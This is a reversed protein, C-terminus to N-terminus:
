SVVDIKVVVLMAALPCYIMAVVRHITDCGADCGYPMIGIIDAVSYCNTSGGANRCRPLFVTMQVVLQM